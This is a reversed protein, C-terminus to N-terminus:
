CGQTELRSPRRRTPRCRVAIPDALTAPAKSLRAMAASFPPAKPHAALLSCADHCALSVWSHECGSASCVRRRFPPKPWPFAAQAKRSETAALAARNALYHQNGERQARANQGPRTNMRGTTSGGLVLRMQRMIGADPPLLSRLARGRVTDAVLEVGASADIVVATMLIRNQRSEVARRFPERSSLTGTPHRDSRRSRRATAPSCTSRVTTTARPRM